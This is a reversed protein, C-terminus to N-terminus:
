NLLVTLISQNGSFQFPKRSYPQKHAWLTGGLPLRKELPINNWTIQSTFIGESDSILTDTHQYLFLQNITGLWQSKIKNM